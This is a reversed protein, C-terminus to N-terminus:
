LRATEPLAQFCRRNERMEIPVFVYFAHRTLSSVTTMELPMVLNKQSDVDICAFYKPDM